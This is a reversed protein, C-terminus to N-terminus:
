ICLACRQISHAGKDLTQNALLQPHLPHCKHIISYKDFGQKFILDTRNGGLSDLDLHPMLSKPLSVTAWNKM